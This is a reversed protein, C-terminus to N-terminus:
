KLMYFNYGLFRFKLEDITVNEAYHHMDSLLPFHIISTPRCSLMFFFQTTKNLRINLVLHNNIIGDTSPVLRPFHHEVRTSFVTMSIPTTPPISATSAM